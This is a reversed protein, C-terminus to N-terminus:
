GWSRVIRTQVLSGPRPPRYREPPRDALLSRPEEPLAVQLAAEVEGISGAEAPPLFTCNPTDNEM